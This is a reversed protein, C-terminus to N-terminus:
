LNKTAVVDVGTGCIDACVVDGIHVPTKVTIGALVKMAENMKGFPISQATKVSLMMGKDTKVTSTLTRKPNTIEDVAYNAGRKCTNGTVETVKGNELTVEM